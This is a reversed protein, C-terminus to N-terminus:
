TQYGKYKMRIKRNLSDSFIILICHVPATELNGTLSFWARYIQSRLYYSLWKREEVAVTFMLSVATIATNCYERGDSLILPIKGHNKDFLFKPEILKFGHKWKWIATHFEYLPIFRISFDLRSLFLLTVSERALLVRMTVVISTLLFTLCLVACPSPPSYM